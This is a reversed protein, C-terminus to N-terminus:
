QAWMTHLEDGDKGDPLPVADADRLYAIRMRDKSAPQM